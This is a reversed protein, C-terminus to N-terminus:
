HPLVLWMVGWFLAGILVGGLIPWIPRPARRREALLRKMDDETVIGDEGSGRGRFMDLDLDNAKALARADETFRLHAM